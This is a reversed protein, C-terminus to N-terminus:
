GADALVRQGLANLHIYDRYPANVMTFARRLDGDLHFRRLAMANVDASYFVLMGPGKAAAQSSASAPKDPMRTAASANLIKTNMSIEDSAVIGPLGGSIFRRFSLIPM